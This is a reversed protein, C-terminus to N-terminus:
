IIAALDGFSEASRYQAAIILSGGEGRQFCQKCLRVCNNLGQLYGGSIHCLLCCNHYSGCLAASYITCQTRSCLGGAFAPGNGPKYDASENMVSIEGLLPGAFGLTSRRVRQNIIQYLVFPVACRMYIATEIGLWDVHQEVENDPAPQGAKDWGPEIQTLRGLKRTM